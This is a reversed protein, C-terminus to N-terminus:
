RKTAEWVVYEQGTLYKWWAVLISLNVMVFFFPVKFLIEDQLRGVGYALVAM